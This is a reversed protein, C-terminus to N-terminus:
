WSPRVDVRRTSDRVAVDAAVLARGVITRYLRLMAEGNKEHSFEREVIRRGRRGFVRARNRDRVLDLCADALARDNTPEVLLATAEHTV